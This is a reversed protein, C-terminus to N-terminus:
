IIFKRWLCVKGSVRGASGPFSRLGSELSRRFVLRPPDGSTKGKKKFYAALAAMQVPLLITSQLKRKQQANLKQWGIFFNPKEARVSSSTLAVKLRTASPLLITSTM